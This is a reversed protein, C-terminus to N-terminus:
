YSKAFYAVVEAKKNCNICKGRTKEEFSINLSKAGGTKFKIDEECSKTNCWNIKVSKGKKILNKFDNMNKAETISERLFKTAKKFLNNQIDDLTKKVKNNLVAVKVIEKKSTDRRVLVVQNKKIDRPGIEIRIPIGKLEWER